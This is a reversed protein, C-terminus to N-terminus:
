QITQIVSLFRGSEPAAIPRPLREPISGSHLEDAPMIAGPRIFVEDFGQRRLARELSLGAEAIFLFGTFSAQVAATAMPWFPSIRRGWTRKFVDPLLLSAMDCRIGDCQRAICGLEVLMAAQLAANGYNLQLTGPWGASGLGRGYAVVLSGSTTQVRCFNDPRAALDEETGPMLFSPHEQLWHHGAAVHNPAFDLILRMHRVNIRRRLRALAKAGGIDDRAQYAHVALCAGARDGGQWVGSFWALTCGSDALRDLEANGIDDLTAPRGLREALGALYSQTEIHLLSPYTTNPM